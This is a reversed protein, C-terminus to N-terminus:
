LQTIQAPSLAVNWIRIERLEGASAEMQSTPMDDVGFDAFANPDTFTGAGLSDLISFQMARDLYGIVIGDTGRTLTVEFPTAATLLPPSSVFVQNGADEVFALEADHVYLGSDDKLGKFDLVKRWSMMVDLAIKIDVTYVAVPMASSLGLGQNMGFRYGGADFSGGQPFLAPGGDDDGYTGALRYQHIPSPGAADPAAADVPAPDGPTFGFRGCGAALVDVALVGAAFVITAAGWRAMERSCIAAGAQPNERDAGGAAARGTATVQTAIWARM